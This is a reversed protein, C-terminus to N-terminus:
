AGPQILVQSLYTFAGKALLLKRTHFRPTIQHPCWHGAKNATRSDSEASVQLFFAM